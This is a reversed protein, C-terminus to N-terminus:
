ANGCENKTIQMNDASTHGTNLDLMCRGFHWQYCAQSDDAGHSTSSTVKMNSIFGFSLLVTTTDCLSSTIYSASPICIGSSSFLSLHLLISPPIASRCSWKPYVNCRSTPAFM